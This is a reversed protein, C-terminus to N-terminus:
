LFKQLDTFLSSFLFAGVVKGCYVKGKKSERQDHLISSVSWTTYSAKRIDHCTMFTKVFLTTKTAWAQLGLQEPLVSWSSWLKFGAWVFLKSIRNRFFGKVFFPQHPPELYFFGQTWAETNDFFFFFYNQIKWYLSRHIIHNEKM